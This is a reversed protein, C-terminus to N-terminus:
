RKSHYQHCISEEGIKAKELCIVAHIPLSELPVEAVRISIVALHPDSGKKGIGHHSPSHFGSNEITGDNRQRTGMRSHFINIERRLLFNDITNYTEEERKKRQCDKRIKSDKRNNSLSVDWEGKIKTVFYGPSGQTTTSTQSM